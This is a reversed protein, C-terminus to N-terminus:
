QLRMIGKYSDLYESSTQRDSYYLRNTSFHNRKSPLIKSRYVIQSCKRNILYSTYTYTQDIVTANKPSVIRWNPLWQKLLTQYHVKDIAQPKKTLYDRYSLVLIDYTPSTTSSWKCLCLIWFSFLMQSLKMSTAYKELIKANRHKHICFHEM